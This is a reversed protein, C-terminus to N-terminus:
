PLRRNACSYPPRWAGSGCVRYLTLCAAVWAPSDTDVRTTLGHLEVLWGGAGFHRGGFYGSRNHVPNVQCVGTDGTSDNLTDRGCGTERDLIRPVFFAVETDTAGYSRFVDGWAACDGPAPQWVPVTTGVTQELRAVPQEAALDAHEVPATPSDPVDTSPGGPGPVAVSSSSPSTAPVSEGVPSPAEVPAAPADITLTDHRTVAPDGVVAAVAIVLVAVSAAISSPASPRTRFHDWRLRSM